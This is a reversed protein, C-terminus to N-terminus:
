RKKAPSGMAEKGAKRKLGFAVGSREKEGMPTGVQSAPAEVGAASSISSFGAKACTICGRKREACSEGNSLLQVPMPTMGGLPLFAAADAAKQAAHKSEKKKKQKETKGKAM